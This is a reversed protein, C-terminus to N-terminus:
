FQHYTTTDKNEEISSADIVAGANLELGQAHFTKVGGDFKLRTFTNDAGLTGSLTLKSEM